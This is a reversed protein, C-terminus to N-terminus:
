CAHEDAADEGLQAGRVVAPESAASAEGTLEGFIRQSLGADADGRTPAFGKKGYSLVLTKLDDVRRRDHEFRARLGDGLNVAPGTPSM